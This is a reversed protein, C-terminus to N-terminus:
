SLVSQKFEGGEKSSIIIRAFGINYHPQDNTAEEDSSGNGGVGRDLGAVTSAAFRRFVDDIHPAPGDLLDGDLQEILRRGSILCFRISEEFVAECPACNGDIVDDDGAFHKNCQKRGM